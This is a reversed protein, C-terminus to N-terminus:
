FLLGHLFIDLNLDQPFVLMQIILLPPLFGILLILILWLLPWPFSSLLCWWHCLFASRFAWFHGQEVNAQHFLIQLVFIRSFQIKLVGNVPQRIMLEGKTICKCLAAAPSHQCLTYLHRISNHRTKSFIM